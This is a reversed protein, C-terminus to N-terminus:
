RILKTSFIRPKASTKRETQNDARGFNGPQLEIRGGDEQHNLSYNYGRLKWFFLLFFPLLFFSLFLLRWRILGLM